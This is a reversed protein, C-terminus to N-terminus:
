KEAAAAYVKRAWQITEKKIRDYNKANNTLPNIQRRM